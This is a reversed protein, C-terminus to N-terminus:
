LSRAQLGTTALARAVHTVLEPSAIQRASVNVAMSLNGLTPYDRNWRAATACAEQIVWVGIDVIMGSNEAVPIFRDPPVVGLTPHNWRLLAEFGVIRGTTLEVVPQYMLSFQGADLAGVLGTELQLREVAATRMDPDYVSCQGRGSSKARYMAVDADRLLSTATTRAGSSAIGISASVTVTQSELVIPTKLAQLVREAVAESEDRVHPSQEILIAFEDGGLRAVTDGPRVAHILRQAVEKLLVDGAVHGLSDNVTKFGDVDIFLVAAEFDTRFNRRLAHEVRDIFLARNALDTLGDHFAQHTLAEEVTKRDTIDHLNVLVGGVDPDNILNVMRVSLWQNRSLGNRVRLDTDFTQGQLTLCRNFMARAARLDEPAVLLFADQGRTPAGAYGTLEALRPADSLILGDEGVVMSADSSNAALAQAYREQTRIAERLETEAALLRAARTFVLGLLMLTVIYLVVPDSEAGRAHQIVAIGGPLLLPVLAVMIGSYTAGTSAGSVQAISDRGRFTATALLVAGLMWGVNMVVAASGDAAFLTFAFDSMLWCTAGGAVLWAALGQLRHSFVARLVLALLVADFTPYLAWVVRVPVTMSTDTVTAHLSLEWQAVMAALFVVVVDLVGDRDVRSGSRRRTAGLLGLGIAAYSGLWGVDAVSINPAEDNTWFFYQWGVDGAASLTVGLAILTLPIQFGSRRAGAWAAVGSGVVVALYTWDGIADEAFAAHVTILATAVLLSAM